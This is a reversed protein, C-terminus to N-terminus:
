HVVGANSSSSRWLKFFKNSLLDTKESPTNICPHIADGLIFRIDAMAAAVADDSDDAGIVFTHNIIHKRARHVFGDLEQTLTKYTNGVSIGDVFIGFVDFGAMRLSEMEADSTLVPVHACLFRSHSKLPSVIECLSIAPMKTPADMVLFSLINKMREDIKQCLNRYRIKGNMSALTRFHVPCIIDFNLVADPNAALWNMITQLVFLDMDIIEHDSRGIYFNRHAHMAHIPDAGAFDGVALLSVLRGRYQDWVPMYRVGTVPVIPCVVEDETVGSRVRHRAPKRGSYKQFQIETHRVSAFERPVHGQDAMERSARGRGNEFALPITQICPQATVVENAVIFSMEKTMTITEIGVDEFLRRKIEEAMLTAKLDSEVLSSNM